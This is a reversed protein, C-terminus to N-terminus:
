YGVYKITNIAWGPKKNEDKNFSIIPLVSNLTAKAKVRVFTHYDELLLTPHTGKSYEKYRLEMQILDAIRMVKQRNSQLLMFLFIYNKYDLKLFGKELGNLLNKTTNSLDQQAYFQELQSSNSDSLIDMDNVIIDLNKSNAESFSIAFDNSVTDLDDMGEPTLSEISLILSTKILPIKLKLKVLLNMDINSEYYMLLIFVVPALINCAGILEMWTADSLILLANNIMRMTMIRNFCAQQNSAESNGGILIYELNAQSFTQAAAPVSKAGTGGLSKGVGTEGKVKNLRNSFKSVAFQNILVSEGLMSPLETFVDKIHTVVYILDEILQVITSINLFLKFITAIFGLSASVAKGLLSDQEGSLKQCNDAIRGMRTALEESDMGITSTNDPHVLGIDDDYISGLLARADDLYSRVADVDTTIIDAESRTGTKSPFLSTTADSLVMCCEPDFLAPLVSFAQQLKKLSEIVSLLQSNYTKTIAVGELTALLVAMETKTLYYRDSDGYNAMKGKGLNEHSSLSGFDAGINEGKLSDLALKQDAVFRIGEDAPGMAVKKLENLITDLGGLDLKTVNAGQWSGNGQLISTANQLNSIAQTAKELGTIAASYNSKYSNLLPGIKNLANKLDTIASDISTNYTSLSSVYDNYAKNKSDWASQASVQSSYSSSYQSGKSSVSTIASEVNATSSKNSLQSIGNSSLTQNIRNLLDSRSMNKTIYTLKSKHESKQFKTYLESIDGSVLGNDNFYGEDVMTQLVFAVASMEEAKTKLNGNVSPRTTTPAQPAPSHENMYNVKANIAEVLANYAEYYSPEAVDDTWDEGGFFEELEGWVKGAAEAFKESFGPAGAVTSMELQQITKTLSYLGKLGEVIDCIATGIDLMQELGPILKEINKVLKSIQQELEAFEELMEIPARYKEHELIQRELVSYNALDFTWNAETSSLNYLLSVGKAGVDSNIDMYGATTSDVGDKTKVGYLGFRSQLTSDLNALSSLASTIAAEDLVQKAAKYRGAEMILASLSCVGTLMISLFISIAGKSCKIFKKFFKNKKM